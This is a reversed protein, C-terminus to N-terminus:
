EERPLPPDGSPVGSLADIVRDAHDRAQVAHQVANAVAPVVRESHRRSSRLESRLTIWAERVEPAAPTVSMHQDLLSVLWNLRDKGLM